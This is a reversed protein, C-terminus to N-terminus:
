SASRLRTRTARVLVIFLNAVLIAEALLKAFGLIPIIINDGGTDTWAGTRFQEQVWWHIWFAFALTLGLWTALSIGVHALFTRLHSPM